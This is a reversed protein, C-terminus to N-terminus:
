YKTTLIIINLVKAVTLTMNKKFIFFFLFGLMWKDFMDFTNLYYKNVSM